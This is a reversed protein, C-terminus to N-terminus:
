KQTQAIIIGAYESWNHATKFANINTADQLAIWRTADKDQLKTGDFADVGLIPPNSHALTVGYLKSCDEFAEKGISTVERPIWITEMQVGSFMYDSITNVNGQLTVSVNRSNSPTSFIGEDDANRAIAYESSAVIERNVYISTLPSQYFPGLEDTGPQFGITLPTSSGEFRISALDTCDYFAYDRINTVSGPITLSRIPRGAFMYKSLTKVNNTLTVSLSEVKDESAFLGENTQTPTYNTGNNQVYSIERGLRISTLPSDYFPGWYGSSAVQYGVSLTSSGDEFVVTNLNDCDLFANVGISTVSSPITISKLKLKAFMYRSITQVNNSITVEVEEVDSSRKTVFFGAQTIGPSYSGGNSDVYNIERGLKIRTLPSDYFPGYITQNSQYGFELPTSGNQIDVTSLEDCGWFVNKGVFNITNPITIETLHSNCFAGQQITTVNNLDITSIGAGEFMYATLTKVQDGLTIETLNERNTGSFAGEYTLAPLRDGFPYNIQRNLTIKTLATYYFPGEDTGDTNYGLTLDVPEDAPSPDFTLTALRSCGNFVDNGIITVTGPIRLTTIPLNCFMRDPITEILSGVNVTSTAATVKNRASTSIAFIGDSDDSPIFDEGNVKKYVFNRNYDITTLPSDYFPGDSNGQGKIELATESTEFTLDTLSSCDDFAYEGISTIGAHITISKIGSNSFMYPSLTRVQNGLTVSILSEKNGFLGENANAASSAYTYNIERDLNITTLPSDYFPGDDDNDDNYGHTLITGTPSPNYTLRALNTCGTFVDNEITNVTGPIILETIGSGAFMFKSLTNVQNGITVSTLTPMGGFLGESATDVGTLTYNIERNLNLTALPSYDQFLNEVEGDTDYGMTLVTGSPSPEFTLTALETCGRFADDHIATVSGPITLTQIPLYAFMFKSLTEVQPGLTVKVTGVEEHFKHAFLGEDWEDPTFIIDEGKSNKGKTYILERNLNVSTLKTDYFAGYESGALTVYGISLSTKTQSSNFIVSTLQECDYFVDVGITNVSGPITIETLPTNRFAEREITVLGEPLSITEIQTDRFAYEQITTVPSSFEIVFKGSTEDFYHAKITADFPNPADEHDYFQTPNKGGEAAMAEATKTYWIKNAAPLNPVFELAAMPQINNRTINVAKTTQMRYLQDNMDTVVIKIGGELNVPPLAFWFETANEKTAGLAVGDGGYSCDLTVATVAEDSMTIVPLKDEDTVILAEGAIKDVGDLSSITINKVKTGDGYLKIVLYGCANRFYLNADNDDSGTAIMLNAGRGFSNPAYTQNAPYTVYIKDVGDEVIVTAASNYPYIGRPFEIQEKEIGTEDVKELEVKSAPTEGNYVYQVNHLNGSFYSIADGTQWLVDKRNEDVYTRTEPTQDADSMSAYIVEPLEGALSGGEVVIKDEEQVTLEIQDKKCSCVLAILSFVVLLKKM